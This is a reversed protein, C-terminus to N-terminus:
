RRGRDKLMKQLEKMREPSPGKVLENAVREMFDKSEAEEETQLFADVLTRDSLKWAHAAIANGKGIPAMVEVTGVASAWFSVAQYSTKIRPAGPRREQTYVYYEPV